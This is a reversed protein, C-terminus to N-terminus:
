GAYDGAKTLVEAPIEDVIESVTTASTFRMNNVRSTTEEAVLAATGTDFVLSQVVGARIEEDAFSLTTRGGAQTATVEPLSGAVEIAAARTAAPVYGMRLVDGLAVFVAENHSSSGQVRADLLRRLAGPDSPLSRAGAPSYDIPGRDLAPFSFYEVGERRVDRRWIRGDPATWSELTSRGADMSTDPSQQDQEVVRHLFKGDPIVAPETRRASTALQAVAASATASKSDMVAPAVVAVAALAAAVGGLALVRRRTARRPFRRTVDARGRDFPERRRHLDDLVTDLVSTERALTWTETLEVDSPRSAALVDFPDRTQTPNPTM